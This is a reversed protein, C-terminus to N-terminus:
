GSVRELLWGIDLDALGPVPSPLQTDAGYTKCQRYGEPGPDTRVEVVRGPVDVLWYTPIGARAYLRPKVNRDKIHSTVAVEVVLLATQPLQGPPPEDALLAVDPQPRGDPSIELTDQAQLWGPGGAFHRVLRRLVATHDPGQPNMDVLLGELLEIPEEDLIGSAVM